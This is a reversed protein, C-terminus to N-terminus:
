HLKGTRKLSNFHAQWDFPTWLISYCESHENMVDISKQNDSFLSHHKQYFDYEILLNKFCSTIDELITEAFAKKENYGISHILLKSTEVMDLGPANEVIAYVEIGNLIDDSIRFRKSANRTLVEASNGSDFYTQLDVRAQKDTSFRKGLGDYLVDIISQYHNFASKRAAIPSADRFEKKSHHIAGKLDGDNLIFDLKDGIRSKWFLSEVVYYINCSMIRSNQDVPETEELKSFGYAM